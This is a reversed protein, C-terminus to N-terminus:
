AALSAGADGGFRGSVRKDKTWLYLTFGKSNVLIKGYATSRVSVTPAPKATGNRTAAVAGTAGAIGVVGVAIGTSILRTVRM